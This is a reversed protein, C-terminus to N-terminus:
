KWRRSFDLDDPMARPKPRRRVNDAERFVHPKPKPIADFRKKAENLSDCLRAPDGFVAPFELLQTTTFSGYNLWWRDFEIAGGSIHYGLSDSETGYYRINGKIVIKRGNPSPQASIFGDFPIYWLERFVNKEDLVKMEGCYRSIVAFKLQIDAFTYRSHLAVKRRAALASAFCIALGATVSVAATMLLVPAAETSGSAFIGFYMVIFAILATEAGVAGALVATVSLRRRYVSTACHFYSRM